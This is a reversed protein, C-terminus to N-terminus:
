GQDFLSDLASRYASIDTTADGGTSREGEPAVGTSGSGLLSSGGIVRYVRDAGQVRYTLTGNNVSVNATRDQGLQSDFVTLVGSSGGQNISLRANGFRQMNWADGYFISWDQTGSELGFLIGSNAPAVDSSDFFDWVDTFERVFGAAGLALSGSQLTVNGRADIQITAQSNGGEIFAPQQQTITYPKGAANPRLGLFSYAGEANTTTTRNVPNGQFDTGSITTLVGEIGPENGNQQGDHNNDIFAKGNLNVPVFDLVEVAVTKTQSVQAAGSLSPDLAGTNGLDNVTATLIRPTGAVTPVSTHYKVGSGLASNIGAVTGTLRIGGTIPVVTAAGPTTVSLTGDSITLDVQVAAGNADIDSISFKPDSTFLNDFDTLFSKDGSQPGPVMITPPDNIPTITINVSGSASGGNGDSVSVSLSDAGNVNLSPSYTLGALATNIDAASGTLTLSAGTKALPAVSSLTGKSVGLTVTLTDGDVDAVSLGSIALPSSPDEDVTKAGPVSLTPDDNVPTVTVSVTATKVAEVDGADPSQVITYTFSLSGNADQVPTFTVDTGNAALALTGQLTGDSITASNGPTVTQAGVALQTIALTNNDDHIDNALVDLLHAGTDEAFTFSNGAAFPTTPPAVSIGVSAQRATGGTVSIDLTTNFPSTDTFSYTLGNLQSTITAAAGTLVISAGSKGGAALTGKGVSLTVSLTSDPDAVTIANSNAASFVLNGGLFATQDGPVTLVTPDDVPTINITVSKTVPTTIIGDTAGIVLTDATDVDQNPKYTLGGLSTNLQALTGSLSISAGSQGGATLNGKSVSLTVTLDNGDADNVSIGSVNLTTDETATVSSPATIVPADNVPTVSISVTATATSGQGNSITYTFTTSSANGAAPTYSFNNGTKSSGLFTLSGNSLSISQNATVAAGNVQIITPNTGSPNFVTDNSLVNFTNNTSSEIFAPPADNTAVIDSVINISGNVFMVMGNCTRSQVMHEATCQNDNQGNLLIDHAPLVDAPDLVFAVNNQATNGARMNVTYVLQPGAKLGADFGRFAGAEDVLGPTSISGSKSNTFNNFQFNPTTPDSGSADTIDLGTATVFNTDFMIDNYVAFPGGPVTQVDDGVIGLLFDEGTSVQTIVKGVAIDKAGRPIGTARDLTLIENQTGTVSAITYFGNGPAINSVLIRDGAKLTGWGDEPFSLKVTAGDISVSRALLNKDLNVTSVIISTTGEGEALKNIVVLPDAPSIFGDANYDIKMTGRVPDEGMAEVSTSGHDNLYNIALLVDLPSVAGDGNGDFLNQANTAPSLHTAFVDGALLLRGELQEARLLRSTRSRRSQKPSKAFVQRFRRSLNNMHKSM